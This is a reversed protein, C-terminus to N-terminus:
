EEESVLWRLYADIFKQLRGDMVASIDGTECGTRLDKVLQYPHMVYNRIQSGWANEAKSANRASAENMRQQEARAMLRAMLVKMATDKNAHQSRENQVAVVIGSPIHTIRVASDTTNVHQGGKGGARYTDIRLDKEDIEIDIDEQFDPTVDVAAFSTERRGSFPSIRVLRHVGIESRVNGFAYEGTVRLEVGKIGAEEGPVLSLEEVKWGRDEFYRTYMRLLMEAWECADSGGAGTHINFFCGERDHKGSLLALIELRELQAPVEEIQGCIEELAKEDGEDSAMEYLDKLDNYNSIAKQMPEVIARVAKMATVTKLAEEQSSWFDAANMREELRAMEVVKDDLKLASRLMALREGANKLVASVEAPDLM